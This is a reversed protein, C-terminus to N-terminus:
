LASILLFSNPIKYTTPYSIFKSQSSFLDNIASQCHSIKFIPVCDSIILFWKLFFISTTSSFPGSLSSYLYVKNVFQNSVTIFFLEYDFYQLFIDYFVEFIHRSISFLFVDYFFSQRWPRLDSSHQQWNNIVSQQLHRHCDTNNVTTYFLNFFIPFTSVDFIRRFSSVDYFTTTLRPFHQQQQKQQETTM